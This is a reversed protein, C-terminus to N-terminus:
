QFKHFSTNSINEGLRQNYVILNIKSLRYIYNATHVTFNICIFHLIYEFEFFLVLRVIQIKIHAYSSEIM